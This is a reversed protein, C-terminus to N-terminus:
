TPEVEVSDIFPAWLGALDGPAASMIVSFSRPGNDVLLENAAIGPPLGDVVANTVLTASLDGLVIESVSEGAEPDHTVGPDEEDISFISLPEASRALFVLEDDDAAEYTVPLDFRVGLAAVDYSTTAGSGSEGAPSSTTSTTTSLTISSERACGGVVAAVLLAAASTRLRARQHGRQGPGPTRM